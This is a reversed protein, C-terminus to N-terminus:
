CEVSELAINPATGRNKILQVLELPPTAHPVALPGANTANTSLKLRTTCAIHRMYNCHYLHMLTAFPKSVNTSTVSNDYKLYIICYRPFNPSFQLLDCCVKRWKTAHSIFKLDTSYYNPQQISTILHQIASTSSKREPRDHM